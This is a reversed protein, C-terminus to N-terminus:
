LFEFNRYILFSNITRHNKRGPVYQVLTERGLRDINNSSNTFVSIILPSLETIRVRPDGNFINDLDDRSDASNWLFAESPHALLRVVLLVKGCFHDSLTCCELGHSRIEGEDLCSKYQTAKLILNNIWHFGTISAVKEQSKELSQLADVLVGEVADLSKFVKNPFWKERIEEWLHEVPNLEPSYPPLFIIRMNTPIKLDKARHWGAKDMVMLIFDDPHRQSVESLFLSMAHANVVPLVLSDLIGDAPSVAAYAYTYERVM